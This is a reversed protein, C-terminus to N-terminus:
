INYQRNYEYFHVLKARLPPIDEINNKVLFLILILTTILMLIIFLFAKSSLKILKTM